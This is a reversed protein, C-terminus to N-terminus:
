SRAGQIYKLNEVVKLFDESLLDTWNTEDVIKRTIEFSVYPRWSKAEPEPLYVDFVVRDIESFEKYLKQIRPALDPGIEQDFRTLESPRFYYVITVGSPTEFVAQAGPNNDEAQGFIPTIMTLTLNAAAGKRSPPSETKGSAPSERRCSNGLALVLIVLGFAVRNGGCRKVEGPKM